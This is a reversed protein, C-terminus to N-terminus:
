HPRPPTTTTIVVVDIGHPHESLALELVAIARQLDDTSRITTEAYIDLDGAAALHQTATRVANLARKTTRKATALVAAEAPQLM